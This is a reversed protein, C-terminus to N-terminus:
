VRLRVTSGFGLCLFHQVGANCHFLLTELYTENRSTQFLYQDPINKNIVLECGAVFAGACSCRACSRCDRQVDMCQVKM